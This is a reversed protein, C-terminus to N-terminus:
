ALDGLPVLILVTYMRRFIIYCSGVFLLIRADFLCTGQNLYIPELAPDNFKCTFVEQLGISFMDQILTIFNYLPDSAACRLCVDTMKLM